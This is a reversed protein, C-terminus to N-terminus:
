PNETRKKLQASFTNRIEEFINMNARYDPYTWDLNHFRNNKYILTVEAYITDGLYIRHYYNKTSALVLNSLTLYGPDLNVKRTYNTRKFMSEIEITTRKIIKLEEALILNEFSIWKRSLRTGMEKEYYSTLNFPFANSRFDIPGFKDTLLEDVREIECDEALIIGCILKSIM